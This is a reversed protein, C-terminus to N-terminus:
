VDNNEDVAHLLESPMNSNVQLKCYMGSMLGIGCLSRQINKTAKFHVKLCSNYVFM